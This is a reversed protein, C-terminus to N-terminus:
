LVPGLEEDPLVSIDEDVQKLDKSRLPNATMEAFNQRNNVIDIALFLAKRFSSPDATNSGAIDYATGHDPSTRVIPLGATYNTGEGFSLLKFPVLGQDHFMALIGDFKRFQGSGFFGDAPYPGIAMINHREKAEEIAPMIVKLEEDGILGEDGAHPNLGLVAIKPKQIGFDERLTKDMIQIKELILRQNIKQAVRKIPIHNTVLGVRLEDKVMLMLSEKVDVAKTLYETHGVHEFGAMQMAKKHIPATVLADIHGAKLDETAQELSLIAYKGGIENAQGMKINVNEKWCNLVNVAKHNIQDISRIGHYSFNELEAINKHYSIIKSSGYIVPTCHNLIREDLLTKLIVELGIGNIDGISIGIKVRNQQEM